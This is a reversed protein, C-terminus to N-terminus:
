AIGSPRSGLYAEIVVPDRAVVGPPGDAIVMGSKLVIMRRALAVVVQMVHEVVIVTLGRNRNLALIGEVLEDAEDRTLGSLSEDLLLLKCEGVLARAIEVKKRDALTIEAPRRGAQGTLRMLALADVVEERWHGARATHMAAVAVNQEVTLTGFLRIKQFTRSLGQRRREFAPSRTIERGFARITGSSPPVNGSILEFLTSKGAGNPGVLAVLEGQAVSFSVDRLAVLGGFRRGVGALELAAVGSV